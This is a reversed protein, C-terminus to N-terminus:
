HVKETKRRQSPRLDGPNLSSVDVAGSWYGRKIGALYFGLEEETMGEAMAEAVLNARTSRWKRLLVPRLKEKIYGLVSLPEEEDKTGTPKADSDM